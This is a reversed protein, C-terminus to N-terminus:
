KKVERIIEIHINFDSFKGDAKLKKIIDPITKENYIGLLVKFLDRDTMKKGNLKVM